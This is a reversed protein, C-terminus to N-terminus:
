CEVDSEVRYPLLDEMDEVQVNSPRDRRQGMQQIHKEDRYKSTDVYDHLTVALRTVEFPLWQVNQAPPQCCPEGGRDPSKWPNRKAVRLTEETPLGRVYTREEIASRLVADRGVNLDGRGKDCGPDSRRNNCIASCNTNCDNM